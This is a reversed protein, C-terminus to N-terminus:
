PVMRHEAVADHNSGLVQWSESLERLETKMKKPLPLSDIADNDQKRSINRLIKSLCKDQLKLKRSKRIGLEVETEAATSSSMPYLDDGVKHLDSLVTTLM